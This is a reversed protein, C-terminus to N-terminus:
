EVLVSFACGCTDQRYLGYMRALQISRQYGGKKKFNAPLAEVKYIESLEGCIDALTEANKHPSVSLTTSFYSCGLEKALRAAESLRLNFCVACRKGGEPEGELGKVAQLFKEPEYKGEILKVPNKAPLAKLIKKQTEVRKRYEDETTINPNYYFLTINFYASLYELVYSSCPGCCSHLLLAPIEGASSHKQILLDLEKQESLKNYVGSLM